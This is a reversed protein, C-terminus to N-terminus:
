FQYGVALNFGDYESKGDPVTQDQLDAKIVVDPHPWFNVGVDTQTYESDADDGAANDWMSYRAFLGWKPSLKYSPELYYGTQEDMGVAKAGDGDVAWTAYLARLGVPGSQWVAHTELLTASADKDDGQTINEEYQLTAAVELGAMGTWKIRGTYALDEAVANAVKQRGSRIKYSDNDLGSTIAVDYSLGPMIRGYMAAGGEWWTTPIINKEVPNRESGYFTPPEHTENLIGVPMLFLGARATHNENLDFDIFAQELEVEGPKGEGALSHELEFETNLRIGEEFDHNIFLVFRHFDMQKKDSGGDLKNDLNNYHLEGYGGLYTNGGLGTNGAKLADIEDQQAELISRLEDIESSAYAPMAAASTFIASAVAMRVRYNM